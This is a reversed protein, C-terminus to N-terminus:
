RRLRRRPRGRTILDAWTSDCDLRVIPVLRLSRAESRSLNIREDFDCLKTPLIKNGGSLPRRGSLNTFYGGAFARMQIVSPLVPRPRKVFEARRLGCIIQESGVDFPQARLAGWTAPGGPAKRAKARAKASCVFCPAPELECAGQRAVFGQEMKVRQALWVELCKPSVDLLGHLKGIEM